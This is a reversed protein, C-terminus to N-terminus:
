KLKFEILKLSLRSRDASDFGFFHHAEQPFKNEASSWISYYLSGKYCVYKSGPFFYPWLDKGTITQYTNFSSIEKTQVLKWEEHKKVWIHDYFLQANMEPSKISNRSLRVFLTNEDIYHIMWVRDITDLYARMDDLYDVVNNGMKTVNFYKGFRHTDSIKFLSDPVSLSDKLQNKLDYEYLRYRLPDCVIYHTQSFDIFQNPALHTLALHEFPIKHITETGAELDYSLFGPGLEESVTNRSYIEYFYLTNGALYMHRGYKQKLLIHQKLRFKKERYDFLFVNNRNRAILLSGSFFYAFEYKPFILAKQSKSLEKSLDQQQPKQGPRFVSVKLEEFFLLTDGKLCYDPRIKFYKSFGIESYNVAKEFVLNQGSLALRILFSAFFYIKSSM